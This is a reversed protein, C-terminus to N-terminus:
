NTHITKSEQEIQQLIENEIDGDDEDLETGDNVMEYEQLEQQLEREWQPIDTDEEQDNKDAKIEDVGLLQMEKRLDDDNVDNEQFTDSIFEDQPPSGAVFEEEKQLHDNPASNKTEVFLFGKDVSGVSSRRSGNSSKEGTSGTEQALVTLQTSQKILSVRYFYNRWFTEENIQKPVLEFRMKQLNPDEQLTATAIPFMSEFHFQFQIGSPPNRLFHRKDTSLALIQEKLSEEENYGIWPPVAAESRKVKEKKETVFKDQERSFDGLFTKDEVSKTIQKAHDTVTKTAAKGYSYLFSGWEKATNIAKSSADELAQKAEDFSLDKEETAIDPNVNDKETSKTESPQNQEQTKDESKENEKNEEVSSDETPSKEGGVGLWSTM